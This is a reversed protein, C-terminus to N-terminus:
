GRRWPLARCIRRLAASAMLLIGRGGNRPSGEDRDGGDQAGSAPEEPVLKPIGLGITTEIDRYAELMRRLVTDYLREPTRGEHIEMATYCWLLRKGPDEDSRHVLMNRWKQLVKLPKIVDHASTRFELELWEELLQLTKKPRPGAVAGCEKCPLPPPAAAGTAGACAKGLSDGELSEIYVRALGTVTSVLSDNWIVPRAMNQLIHSEAARLGYLDFGRRERVTRVLSRLASALMQEDTEEEGEHLRSQAYLGSVVDHDSGVNESLMYHQEEPPIGDLEGLWCVVLGSRNIGYGLDSGNPFHISGGNRFQRTTYEDRAMYRLLVVRRFFVPAYYGDLESESQRLMPIALWDTSDYEFEVECLGFRRQEFAPRCRRRGDKRAERAAARVVHEVHAPVETRRCEPCELTPVDGDVAVGDVDRGYRLRRLAMWANCDVCRPGRSPAGQRAWAVKEM